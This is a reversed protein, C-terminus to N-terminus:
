VELTLDSLDIPSAERVAKDLRAIYTNVTDELGYLPWLSRSGPRKGKGDHDVHSCYQKPAGTHSQLVYMHGHEPNLPCRDGDGVDTRAM